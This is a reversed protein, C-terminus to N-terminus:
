GIPELSRALGMVTELPLDSSVVATTGHRALLVMARYWSEGVDERVRLEDDDRPVSRWDTWATREEAVRPGQSVEISHLAGPDVVYVMHLGDPPGESPVTCRVLRAGDPLATPVLVRFSVVTSAEDLGLVRPPIIRSEKPQEGEPFELVFLDPGLDEDFVVETM